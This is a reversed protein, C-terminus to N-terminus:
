RSEEWVPDALQERALDGLLDEEEVINQNLESLLSEAREVSCFRELQKFFPRFEESRLADAVAPWRGILHHPNHKLVLERCREAVDLWGARCAAEAALVLFRDGGSTQQRAQSIKALALYQVVALDASSM